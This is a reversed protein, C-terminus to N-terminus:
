LQAETIYDFVYHSAKKKDRPPREWSWFKEWNDFEYIRTYHFKSNHPIWLGMYKVGETKDCEEKIKKEHKKLEEATGWWDFNSIARMKM